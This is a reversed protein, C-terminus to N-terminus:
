DYSRRLYAFRDLAPEPRTYLPLRTLQYRRVVPDRSAAAQRAATVELLARRTLDVTAPMSPMTSSGRAPLM